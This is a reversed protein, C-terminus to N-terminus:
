KWQFRNSIKEARTRTVMQFWSTAHAVQGLPKTRFTRTHSQTKREGNMPFGLKDDFSRLSNAGLLYASVKGEAKVFGVLRDGAKLKVPIKHYEDGELDFDEEIEWDREPPPKEDTQPKEAQQPQTGHYHTGGQFLTSHHIGQNQFIEKGIVRNFTIKFVMRFENSELLPGLSLPLGLVWNAFATPGSYIIYLGVAVLVLRTTWEESKKKSPM